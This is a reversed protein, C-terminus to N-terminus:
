FFSPSGKTLQKESSFPIVAPKVSPNLGWRSVAKASVNLVKLPCFM